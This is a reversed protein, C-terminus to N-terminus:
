KENNRQLIRNFKKEARRGFITKGKDGKEFNGIVNGDSDFSLTASRYNGDNNSSIRKGTIEGAENKTVSSTSSKENYNGNNNYNNFNTEVSVKKIPDSKKM